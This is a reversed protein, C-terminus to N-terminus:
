VRTSLKYLNERIDGSPIKSMSLSIDDWITDFDQVNDNRLTILFPIMLM